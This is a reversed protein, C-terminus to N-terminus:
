QSPAAVPLPNIGRAVRSCSASPVFIGSRTARRRPHLTPPKHERATEIASTLLLCGFSEEGAEASRSRTMRRERRTVLATERLAFRALPADESGIGLCCHRQPRTKTVWTAPAPHDESPRPSWHVRAGPSRVTGRTSPRGREVFPAGFRFGLLTTRADRREGDASM